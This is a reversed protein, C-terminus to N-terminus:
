SSHKIATGALDAPTNWNAFYKAAEAPLEIFRALGSQVCHRGFHTVANHGDNLLAEVLPQASKPYIAALPEINGKLSPIVGMNGGCNTLLETLFAAEMEPLDVALALLLPSTTANLAREIGALPGAGTFKDLLVPRGFESYDTEERGSIFVEEAGIAHALQIQRALLTQGAIEIQAKDCGMRSSKGGALIVVSFNM